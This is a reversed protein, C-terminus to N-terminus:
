EGKVTRVMYLRNDVTVSFLNDDYDEELTNSNKKLINLVKVIHKDNVEDQKVEYGRDKTGLDKHKSNFRYIGSCGCCCKNAKGSYVYLVDDKKLSM